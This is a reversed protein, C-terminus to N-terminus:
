LPQFWWGSVAHKQHIKQADFITVFRVVLSGQNKTTLFNAEELQHIINPLKVPLM